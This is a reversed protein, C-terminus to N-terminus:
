ILYEALLLNAINFLAHLTIPAALRGTREFLWGLVLSLTLLTAIGSYRSAEPLATLHMFVFLFSTLLVAGTRSGGLKRFGQQVLGRYAFEETIPAAVVVLGMIVLVWPDGPSEQLAKLTEHAVLEPPTGTLQRQLFGVLMGASQALPFVLLFAVAGFAISRLFSEPQPLIGPLSSRQHRANLLKRSIVVLVIGQATYSSIMLLGTVRLSTEVDGLLKMVVLPALVGALLFVIWGLLLHESAMPWDPGRGSRIRWLRKRLVLILSLAACILFALTLPSGFDSEVAPQNEVQDIVEAIASTDSAPEVPSPQDSSQPAAIVPDFASADARGTMLSVVFLATLPLIRSLM